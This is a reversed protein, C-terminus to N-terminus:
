LTSTSDTCIAQFPFPLSLSLFLGPISPWKRQLRFSNKTAPSPPLSTPLHGTWLLPSSTLAGGLEKRSKRDPSLLKRLQALAIYYEAPIRIHKLNQQIVALLISLFSLYSLLDKLFRRRRKLSPFFTFFHPRFSWKFLLWSVKRLVM